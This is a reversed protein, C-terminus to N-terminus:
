VLVARETASRITGGIDRARVKSISRQRGNSVYTFHIILEEWSIISISQYRRFSEAILLHSQISTDPFCELPYHLVLLRIDINM